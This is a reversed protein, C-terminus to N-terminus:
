RGKLLEAKEAKTLPEQVAMWLAGNLASAMGKESQLAKIGHRRVLADVDIEVAFHRVKGRIVVKVNRVIM